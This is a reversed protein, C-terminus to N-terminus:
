NIAIAINGRRFALGLQTVKNFSISKGMSHHAKRKRAPTM